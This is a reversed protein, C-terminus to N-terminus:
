MTCASTQEHSGCRPVQRRASLWPKDRVNVLAGLAGGAEPANHLAQMRRQGVTERESFRLRGGVTVPTGGLGVNRM